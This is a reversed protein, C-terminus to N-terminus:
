GEVEVSELTKLARCKTTCLRFVHLSGYRPSTFNHDVFGASELSGRVRSREHLPTQASTPANRLGAAACRRYLRAM